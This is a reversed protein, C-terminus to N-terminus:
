QICNGRIDHSEVTAPTDIMELAGSYPNKARLACSFFSLAESISTRAVKGYMPTDVFQIELNVFCLELTSFTLSPNCM